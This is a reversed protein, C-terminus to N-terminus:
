VAPAPLRQEPRLFAVGGLVLALAVVLLAPWDTWGPKAVMLYVIAFLMVLDFRAISLCRRCHGLAEAERGEAFTEKAREALPSLVFAGLSGTVLIGLLGLLTWAEWALNGVWILLLGLVLVVVTGPVFIRPAIVTVQQIVASLRATDRARDALIGLFVVAFAGGLWLISAAVHLFKLIEYLDM